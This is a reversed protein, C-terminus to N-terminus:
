PTKSVNDGTPRQQTNRTRAQLAELQDSVQKLQQIYKDYSQETSTKSIIYTVLERNLGRELYSKKVTDDQNLGKVEM